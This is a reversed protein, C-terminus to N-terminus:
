FYVCLFYTVCLACRVMDPPPLVIKPPIRMNYNRIYYEELIVNAFKMKDYFFVSDINAMHKTQIQLRPKTHNSKNSEIHAITDCTVVFNQM